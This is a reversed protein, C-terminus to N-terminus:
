SLPTTSLHQNMTEFATRGCIPPKGTLAEFIDPGTEEHNSSGYDESNM